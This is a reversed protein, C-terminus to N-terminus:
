KSWTGRTEMTIITGLGPKSDIKLKGGIKRLREEMNFLGNGTPTAQAPIGGCGNDAIRISLLDGTVSLSIQVETANSHKLVNNLAEKVVMFLNHREETSIPHDPLEPPLDLRCRVGTNFIIRRTNFFTTPSITSRTTARTSRGSSKM